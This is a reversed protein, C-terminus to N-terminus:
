EEIGPGLGLKARLLDHRTVSTIVMGDRLIPLVLLGKDKMIGLVEDIPTEETVAIPDKKMIDAAKQRSLDKGGEIARLLDIESVFGLPRLKDDVVPGGTKHNSLLEIAIAEGSQSAHFRLPNTTVINGVTQFGGAPIGHRNM